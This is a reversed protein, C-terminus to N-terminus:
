ILEPIFRRFLGNNGFVHRRFFRLPIRLFVLRELANIWLNPLSFPVFLYSFLESGTIQLLYDTQKRVIAPPRHCFVGGQQSIVIFAPLQRLKARRVLFPNQVSVPM